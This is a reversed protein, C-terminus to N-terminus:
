KKARPRPRIEGAPSVALRMVQIRDARVCVRFEIIFILQRKIVANGVEQDPIMERANTTPHGNRGPSGRNDPM